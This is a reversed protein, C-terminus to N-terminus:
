DVRSHITDTYYATVTGLGELFVPIDGRKAAVVGVPVVPGVKGHASQGHMKHSWFWWGGALAAALIAYTRWQLGQQAAWSQLPQHRSTGKLSTLDDKYPRDVTRAGNTKEM